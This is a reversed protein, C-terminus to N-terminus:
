SNDFEIHIKWFLLQKSMKM